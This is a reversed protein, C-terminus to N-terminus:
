VSLFRCRAMIVTDGLDAAGPKFPLRLVFRGEISCTATAQFHMLAQQEELCKQNNKSMRGYDDEELLGQKKWNDELVEGVSLLCISHIGGTVILGLKSEQLCLKGLLLPM